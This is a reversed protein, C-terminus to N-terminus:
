RGAREDCGPPRREYNEALDHLRWALSEDKYSNLLRIARLLLPTTLDAFEVFIDRLRGRTWVKKEWIFNEINRVILSKRPM